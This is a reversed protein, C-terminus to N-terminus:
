PSINVGIDNSIGTLQQIFPTITVGPNVLTSWRRMQGNADIEVIGIETIRDLAINAGTTELDVFILKESYAM